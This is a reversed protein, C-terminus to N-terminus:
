HAKRPFRPYMASLADAGVLIGIVFHNVSAVTDHSFGLIVPSVILWVGLALNVWEEWMGPKALAVIALLAIAAGFIYSNLAAIGALDTYSLFFPSAILWLGLVLMVADQWRMESKM